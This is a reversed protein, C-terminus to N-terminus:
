DNEPGKNIGLMQRPIVFAMAGGVRRREMKIPKNKNGMM